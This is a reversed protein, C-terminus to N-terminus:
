NELRFTVNVVLRVAIPEDNLYTPEYKWQQVADMAAQILLPAGSVVTMQVVNGQQDLVADIMVVGQVRTQRALPPYVPFVKRIPRPERVRGGVRIPASSRAARPAAVPMRAHESLISGLVGGIQGGPVGGPVGGMVGGDVDPPLPEEKLMAVKAPIAKPAMLKGGTLLVRRPATARAAAMPAPPPPPPPPPAILLTKTFQTLDLKETFYLSSLLISAVLAVHFLMSFLVRTRSSKPRTTSLELLAESFLENRRRPASAPANKPMAERNPRMREPRAERVALDRLVESHKLSVAEPYTRM